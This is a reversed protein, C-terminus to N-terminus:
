QLIERFHSYLKSLLPTTQLRLDFALYYLPWIICLGSIVVALYYLPWFICLGSLAFALYYLPWIICHGHYYLPWIICLGSLVFDSLAIAM